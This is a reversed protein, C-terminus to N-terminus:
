SSNEHEGKWKTKALISWAILVLYWLLIIWLPPRSMIISGYPVNAMLKMGHILVAILALSSHNFVVALTTVCSGLVFSLCASLVILFALPIVLLNGPLAILPFRGFFYATLPTSVLWASCSLACLSGVYQGCSRFKAIWWREPQIRWPDPEWLRRIPREFHPYLVILGMIVVFSFICGVDFLQSPAAVLIVLAAMAIGSFSDARRGVLPALFYIIAMVCARIASARAGTALTYGILLPALVLVWYVRSIRIARLVFTVLMAIIGVHLGSIAFIHLTATSAFVERVDEPMHGRYGLLLAHMLGVALPYDEIGLSIYEAADRRAAYCREAFWWGNGASLFRTKNWNTNLYCEGSHSYQRVTGSILWQEGYGPPRVGRRKQGDGSYDPCAHDVRGNYDQSLRFPPGYWFVCIRGHGEDWSREGCRIEEVRFPFSWVSRKGDSMPRVDPDGSVVGKIEIREGSKNILGTLMTQLPGQPHVVAASWAVFLVCLHLLFISPRWRSSSSSSRFVLLCLLSLILSFGASELVLLPSVDVTFGFWTGAVYCLVLGVLPRRPFIRHSKPVRFEVDAVSDGLPRKRRLWSAASRPAIGAEGSGSIMASRATANQVQWASPPDAKTSFGFGTDVIRRAASRYRNHLPSSEAGKSEICKAYFM